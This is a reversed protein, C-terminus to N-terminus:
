QRGGEMALLGGSASAAAPKIDLYQILQEAIRKFSPAAVVSGYGVGGSAPRGDDVIVSIVARPHTAPFFGVFSGVHHRNSYRGDILKQATGTKGAIEFNPINAVKGTGDTVVGELLRAMVRATEPSVVARRVSKGFEYVTEGTTDRVERIIQPRMLLGDNAITAMAYHIQLPTAAITYGAPIRTIDIGSWKSVPNFLGSGEYGLPFGTQEGFGFARAYDHLKQDGALMALRAAGNNSSHSIIQAVTLPIPSAHDDRMLRLERGNYAVTEQNCPLRTGPSVLGENLAMAAPVIKFTSGPEYLDAAAINRQSAIPATSFENLDFTPYNGLALIFGTEPDTVIITAKQPKFKQAIAALEEDVMHQIVSDISLVVGYGDAAPVERTRFQALERRLGDKESERWGDRGRLYFDAFAEVGGSPQGEKNVFGIVHSALSNHPYARRYTRNGYVGKVGLRLIEAYTSEQVEDSLKAWRILRGSDGAQDDAAPRTKTEFAATLQALPIGVLRALEPWKSRDEERLSQPDVGLQILSRSTALIDDGNAALIDGRRATEVDIRYRAREIQAVYYDRSFVHLDALRLAVCGLSAFLAGAILVIRYNSAFGRQTM